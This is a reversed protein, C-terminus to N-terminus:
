GNTIPAKTKLHLAARLRALRSRRPPEPQPTDDPEWAEDLWQLIEDSELVFGADPLAAVVELAFREELDGPPPRDCAVSTLLVRSLALAQADGAHWDLDVPGDPRTHRLRRVQKETVAYVEPAEYPRRGVFYTRPTVREPLSRFEAPM